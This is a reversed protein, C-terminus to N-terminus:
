EVYIDSHRSNGDKTYIYANSPSTIYLKQYRKFMEGTIAKDNVKFEKNTLVFKVDDETSKIFGDKVMDTLIKERVSNAGTSNYLPPTPPTPFPKSQYGPPTPPAMVAVPAYKSTSTVTHVEKRGTDVTTSTAVSINGSNVVATNHQVNAVVSSNANANVVVNRQANAINVNRGKDIDKFIERVLPYTSVFDEDPVRRGNITLGTAQNNKIDVEFKTSEMEHKIVGTLNGGRYFVPATGLVNDERPEYQGDYNGVVATDPVKYAQKWTTLVDQYKAKVAAADGTKYVVKGDVKIRAINYPSYAEVQYLKSNRKFLYINYAWGNRNEQFQLTTGESISTPDTYLEGYSKPTITDAQEALAVDSSLLPSDSVVDGALKGFAKRYLSSDASGDKVKPPPANKETNSNVLKDSQSYVLGIIGTISLCLLLFSKEAMNLTKNSNQVIRKVRDLLQHKKSGPFALAYKNRADINFEMFSVIAKVYGTKSQMVTIAMDDCCHEREERIRASIWLLAPNFFFITEAFHQFLNVIFDRRRIHALEHLLVAEVQEPPLSALLGVPMLILPKLIGTVAPVKVMGSELLRVKMSLGIREALEAVKLAWHEEPTFTKYNRVRQIYILGSLLWLLKAIFVIFWGTVLLPAHENFYAKFRTSFAPTYEMHEVPAQVQQVSPSVWQVIGTQSEVMPLPTPRELVYFFTVATGAIFLFFLVTFLNYRLAPRSKRTFLILLGAVLALAFGQWLSHILTWGIARVLENNFFLTHM